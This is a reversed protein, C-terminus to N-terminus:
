KKFRMLRSLKVLKAERSQNTELTETTGISPSELSALRNLLTQQNVAQQRRAQESRTREERLDKERVNLQERMRELEARLQAADRMGESMRKQEADKIRLKERLDQITREQDHATKEAIQRFEDLEKRAQQARPDEPREFLARRTMDEINRGAKKIMTRRRDMLRDVRSLHRARFEEFERKEDEVLKMLEEAEGTMMGYMAAQIEAIEGASQPLRRIENELEVIKSRLTNERETAAKETEVLKAQLEAEREGMSKAAQDMSAQLEAAHRREMEVQAELEKVRAEDVVVKEVVKEVVREVEVPVEVRKEVIKEIEIPVEKEVIKEVPVEVRVEKEVIKEVPVEVIKEVIKEVPVEVIKEVVNLAPPSKAEPANSSSAEFPPRTEVVRANPPLRRSAILADAAAKNFPGRPNGDGLDISYRMDLFPVNEVKLWNVGDSSIEQGPQIRGMKAWEVLREESEPGFSGAQTKLHWVAEGM